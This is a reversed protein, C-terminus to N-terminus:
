AAREEAAEDTREYYAIRAGGIERYTWDWIFWAHNFSPSGTSGEIWKIRSTLVVKKAFQPCRGFLHQRSKASDYDIRLLMAVRGQYPKVLKLAHEIFDQAHSYPPNTIVADHHAHAIALFNVGKEIDSARVRVGPWTALMKAMKGQGCAPEWIYRVGKMHPALAM